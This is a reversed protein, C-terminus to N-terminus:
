LLIEKLIAQSNHFLILLHMLNLLKLLNYGVEAWETFNAGWRTSFLLHQQISARWTLKLPWAQYIRCGGFQWQTICM